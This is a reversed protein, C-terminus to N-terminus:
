PLPGAKNANALCNLQLDLSRSRYHVTQRDGSICRLSLQATLVGEVLRSDGAGSGASCFGEVRLLPLQAGPVVLEANVTHGNVISEGSLNLRTDAVSLSISAAEAGPACHPTMRLEFELAPLRLLPRDLLQERVDFVAVAADVELKPPATTTAASTALATLTLTSRLFM